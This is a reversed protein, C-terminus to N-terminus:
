SFPLNAGAEVLAKVMTGSTMGAPWIRQSTVPLPSHASVPRLAVVDPLQGCHGRHSVVPHVQLSRDALCSAAGFPRDAAVVWRIDVLQGALAIRVAEAPQHRM